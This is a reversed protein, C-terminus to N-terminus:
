EVFIGLVRKHCPSCGIRGLTIMLLSSLIANEELLHMRQPVRFMQMCMILFEELITFLPALSVKIKKSLVYHKYFKLKCIKAGKLLAQKALVQMSKESAHSFRMHWLKITDENSDVAITLVCTVISDKLYHLHMNRISKMVVMSGKIDNELTM